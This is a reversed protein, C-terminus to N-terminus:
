EVEVKTSSWISSSSCSAVKFWDEDAKQAPSGEYGDQFVGWTEFSPAVLVFDFNDGVESSAIPTDLYVEMKDGGKMSRAAKLWAASLVEVEAMTTGENTTCSWIQLVNNAQAVTTFGMLLIAILVKNM